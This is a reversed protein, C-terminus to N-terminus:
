AESRAGAIPPPAGLVFVGPPHRARKKPCVHAQLLAGSAFDTQCYDCRANRM